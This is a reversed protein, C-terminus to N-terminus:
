AEGPSRVLQRLFDEFSEAVVSVEEFEPEAGMVVQGFGADSTRVAWYSYCSHVSFMFPFHVDWFSRIQDVLETDDDASELSRLEWENWAFASDGTGDYDSQCLFWTTDASSSCSLLNSLFSDLTAPLRTYRQAVKTPLVFKADDAEVVNWGGDRLQQKLKLADM